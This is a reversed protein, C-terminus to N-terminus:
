FSKGVSFILSYPESGLYESKSSVWWSTGRQSNATRIRTGFELGTYPDSQNLDYGIRTSIYPTVCKTGFNVRINGYVPAIWDSQDRTGGFTLRTGYGMGAGVFLWNNVNYGGIADISIQNAVGAGLEVIGMGGRASEGSLSLLSSGHRSMKYNGSCLFPLGTLAVVGGTACGLISFVPYLGRTNISGNPEYTLWGITGFAISTLAVSAGTYMIAKGTNALGQGHRETALTPADTQQSLSTSYQAFTAQSILSLALGLIITRLIRKM